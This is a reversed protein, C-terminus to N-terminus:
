DRAGLGSGRMEKLLWARAYAWDRDATAVSIGLAEAAEHQTLGAFYRLKVLEAKRADKAQLKELAADLEILDGEVQPAAIQDEELPERQRDGGRKLRKKRRASEVLIRRMAEAAAAFFHGRSSFAPGSTLPRLDSTLSEGAGCSEGVESKQSRVESKQGGVDGGGVLRVYAEHVLATAQLTQGPKEYALRARALRRLEDYVLPLLQGAAQPDGRAAANLIETAQTM